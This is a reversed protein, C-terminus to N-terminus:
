KITASTARKTEEATMSLVERRWVYERTTMETKEACTVYFERKSVANLLGKRHHYAKGVNYGELATTWSGMVETEQTLPERLHRATCFSRVTTSERLWIVREAETKISVGNLSSFTSSKPFLDEYFISKTAEFRRQVFQQDLFDKLHLSTCSNIM